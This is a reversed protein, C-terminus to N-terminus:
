LVRTVSSSNELPDTEPTPTAPGEPEPESPAPGEPTLDSTQAMPNTFLSHINIHDTDNTVPRPLCKM